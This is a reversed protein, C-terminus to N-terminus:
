SFMNEAIANESLSSKQGDPYEVEDMRTYFIPNDSAKGIRLGDKYRLWIMLWAFEHGDSDRPISFEM